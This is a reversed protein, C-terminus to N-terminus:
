HFTISDKTYQKTNFLVFFFYKLKFIVTNEHGTERYNMEWIKNSYASSKEVDFNNVTIAM